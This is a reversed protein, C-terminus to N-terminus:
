QRGGDSREDDYLRYFGMFAEFLNAFVQFDDRDEIRALSSALFDKFRPSVLGRGLAYAAKANLMRLYPLMREFEEKQDEEKTGKLISDFRLVEDYFKRLQTRKNANRGGERHIEEALNEAFRSFLEPQVQKKPKDKWFNINM